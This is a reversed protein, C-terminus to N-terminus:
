FKDMEDKKKKLIPIIVNKMRTQTENFGFPKIIFNKVGLQILESIIEKSNESTIVFITTSDFNPNKKFEHLFEIGTMIPMSIDLCIVDPEEKTALELGEKGNKATIIEFRFTKKILQTLFTRVSEDDDVILTKLM